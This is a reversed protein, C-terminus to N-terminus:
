KLNMIGVNLLHSIDERLDAGGRKSKADKPPPQPTLSIKENEKIGKESTENNSNNFIFTVEKMLLKKM